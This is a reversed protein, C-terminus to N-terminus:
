EWHSSNLRTSKRDATWQCGGRLLGGLCEEGWSADPGDVEGGAAIDWIHSVCLARTHAMSGAQPVPMKLNYVSKTCGLLWDVLLNLVWGVLVM